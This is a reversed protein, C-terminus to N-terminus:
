AITARLARCYMVSLTLIVIGIYVDRHRHLTLHLTCAWHLSSPTSGLWRGAVLGDLRQPADPDPGVAAMVLMLAPQSWRAHAAGIALAMPSDARLCIVDVDGAVNLSVCDVPETM